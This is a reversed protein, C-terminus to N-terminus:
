DDRGRSAVVSALIMLGAGVWAIGGMAEESADLVFYAIASAFLPTTSFIVQAQAAPVVKQGVAQLYGALASPGLGLWGIILCKEPSSFLAAMERSLGQISESGPFPLLLFALSYLSLFSNKTLTLNLPSFQTSYRGLRVIWLSYSIISLGLLIYGSADSGVLHTDEAANAKMIGDLVVLTSGLLGLVCAAWENSKVNVRSLYVLIPTIIVQSQMIFSARTAPVSELAFLELGFALFMWVGLEAGAVLVSNSRWYLADSVVNDFANMPARRISPVDDTAPSPDIDASDESSRSHQSSAASIALFLAAIFAQLFNVLGASPPSSTEFLYRLTPAYSGWLFSVSFLAAYGLTNASPKNTSFSSSPSKSPPQPLHSSSTVGPLTCEEAKLEEIALVRVALRHRTSHSNVSRSARFRSAM